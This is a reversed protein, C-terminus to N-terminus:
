VHARGIEGNEFVATLGRPRLLLNLVSKAPLDTVVISIERDAGEAAVFNLGTASRLIDLADALRAQRLHLSVKVDLKRDVDERTDGAAAIAAMLLIVTVTKM